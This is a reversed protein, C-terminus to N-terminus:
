RANRVRELRDRLCLLFLSLLFLGLFARGSAAGLFVLLSALVLFSLASTGAGGTVDGIVVGIHVTGVVTIHTPVTGMTLTRVTTATRTDMIAMPVIATATTATVLGLALALAPAEGM